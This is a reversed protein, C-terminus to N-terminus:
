LGIRKGEGRDCLPCPYFDHANEETFTQTFVEGCENCRYDASEKSDTTQEKTM